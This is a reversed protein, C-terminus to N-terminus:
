GVRDHRIEQRKKLKIEHKVASSTSFYLKTGGGGLCFLFLFLCVRGATMKALIEGDSLLLVKGKVTHRYGIISIVALIEPFLTFGM